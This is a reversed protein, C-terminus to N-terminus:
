GVPDLNALAEAARNPTQDLSYHLAYIRLADDPDPDGVLLQRNYSRVESETWSAGITKFPTYITPRVRAGRREIYKVTEECDTATTGPMGLIVFCNLEVAHDRCWAAVHDFTERQVRKIPPLDVTPGPDLIEVGVSIRICGSSAMLSVLEEDLHHLTTTCKWPHASGRSMLEQSFEMVWGRRLTFTPAYMSVYDFPQAAFSQEIYEVTAAVTLRRDKLGERGPVDCFECRVPCGRAVPVVLERKSPIAPFRNNDRASVREYHQYPIERVDPLSWQEPELFSGTGSPDLWASGRRLSVGPLRSDDGAMVGSVFAGVGAEYDGSEVIADLDLRRLYTPVMDSLRGFTALRSSPALQRAYAVTTEVADVIDFDNAIAVVDYGSHLIDGIEKWTHNLAGADVVDVEVRDDMSRLYAATLFLGIHHGANLYTPAHPPWLVLVRTCSM